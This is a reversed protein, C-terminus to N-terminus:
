FRYRLEVSSFKEIKLVRYTDMKLNLDLFRECIRILFVDTYLLDKLEEFFYIKSTLGSFFCM